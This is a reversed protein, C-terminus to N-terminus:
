QKNPDFGTEEYVANVVSQGIYPAMKAHTALMARRLEAREAASLTYIRTKGTAKIKQLAQDNEEQAIRNAYETAEGIAQTLQYRIRAPLNDWFRKNAIVAYGLYGHNTLAIHKQVEYIKQTFFNSHPNEAGDIFGTRLAQYTGSFPLTSPQAGLTRIQAELVKSPQIRIRLGKFSALDHM